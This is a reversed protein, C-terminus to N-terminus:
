QDREDHHAALFLRQQEADCLVEVTTKVRPFAAKDIPTM